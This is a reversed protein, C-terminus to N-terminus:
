KRLPSPNNIGAFFFWAGGSRLYKLCVPFHRRRQGQPERRGGITVLAPIQGTVGRGSVAAERQTM